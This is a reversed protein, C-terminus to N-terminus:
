QTDYQLRSDLDYKQRASRKKFSHNHFLCYIIHRLNLSYDKETASRYSIRIKPMNERLFILWDDYKEDRHRKVIICIMRRLEIDTLRTIDAIVVNDKMNSFKVYKRLRGVDYSTMGDTNIHIQSYDAM